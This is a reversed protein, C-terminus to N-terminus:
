WDVSRGGNVAAGLPTCNAASTATLDIRKDAVSSKRGKTPGTSMHGTM